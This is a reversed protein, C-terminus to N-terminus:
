SHCHHWRKRKILLALVIFQDRLFGPVIFQDRYFFHDRLSHGRLALAINAYKDKKCKAGIKNINYSKHYFM